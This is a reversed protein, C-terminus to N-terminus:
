RGDVFPRYISTLAPILQALGHHTLRLSTAFRAGHVGFQDFECMVEIVRALFEIFTVLFLERAEASLGHFKPREVIFIIQVGDIFRALQTFVSEDFEMAHSILEDSFEGTVRRACLGPAIQVGPTDRLAAM